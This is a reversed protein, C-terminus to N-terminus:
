LGARYVATGTLLYITNTDKDVYMDRIDEIDDFIYQGTYVAGGTRDDKNYVLIRNEDGELMYIQNMDVETFIKTPNVVAKVPQKSIPFEEKSGQFLRTIYGDSGLVYVSGDIALDIANSIDVSVDNIYAEAGDFTDRRRTYRWVQNGEPDLVYIRNSFSKIINGKKFSDDTTQLFSMRDDKYEIVKGSETFFLISKKDDYYTASIVSENDDITLPDQAEDALIPYLANYEYAYLQKNLSVLGLASVNSRKMSLDAMEEVEPHMVGDLQDRTDLIMDLLDRAKSKHYGSNLVEIAKQEADNLMDGARDKDFQGTTIASNIQERIQVLDNALTQIRMDEDAKSRLWGVGLTLVIILAIIAILIKDKGWNSFSWSNASRGRRGGRVEDDAGFNRMRGRVGSFSDGVFSKIKGMKLKETVTKLNIKGKKEPVADSFSEERSHAYVEEIVREGEDKMPAEMSQIGILGIKSIVEGRLFDEIAAISNNLPGGIQKALDNKSVYRLLRTTSMLVFDGPELDGSAINTFLDDSEIEQLDDSITTIFRKRVLYAEAEGTQTLYLQDGVVAAILVNLKGIWENGRDKQYEAVATNVAKLAEEFREYGDAERDAFFVRRMGDFIIEGVKDPDVNNQGIELCIFVKGNKENGEGLDYAYNEVFSGEDKGVFLFDYQTNFQKTSM